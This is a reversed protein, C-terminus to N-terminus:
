AEPEKLTAFHYLLTAVVLTAGALGLLENGRAALLALAVLCCNVAFVRLSIDAHSLGCQHARQYFHEKHAQWIKEMRVARKGLTITADALFYGPLIIAAAWQGALILELLMWGIFFGLTVSGVDGMFIKAPHWNWILFGATAAATVLSIPGLYPAAGTTVVVISIGICITITEISAIGDIGDMFNFLNIFWIWCLGTFILLTWLPLPLLMAAILPSLAWIGIAVCIIQSSLRISVRLSRLDDIWSIAALGGLVALIIWSTELEGTQSGTLYLGLVITAVIALGGGRPTPVTHSSRDVPYDLVASRVLGFILLRALVASVLFVIMISISFSTLNEDFM